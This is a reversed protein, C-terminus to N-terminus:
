RGIASRLRGEATDAGGLGWGEVSGRVEELFMESNLISTGGLVTRVGPTAANLGAVMRAEEYTAGGVVFVIIDQPRDRTTGGGEVFPYSTDKLRSKILDQLTSELRPSHQTYVNEVGKLGRQIRSRADAFFSSSQFLPAIGAAGATTSTILSNHYTVLYRILNIQSPSLNTTTRLLDTLIPLASNPSKNYRLAYIAVLRLKSLDPISPDGILRQL